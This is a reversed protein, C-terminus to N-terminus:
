YNQLSTRDSTYSMSMNDNNFAQRTVINDTKHGIQLRRVASYNNSEDLNESELIIIPQEDTFDAKGIVTDQNISTPTNFPNLVRVKATPSENIDAICATMILTFTQKFNDSPELLVTGPNLNEDSEKRDIFVDIIHETLGQIEYHDASRV